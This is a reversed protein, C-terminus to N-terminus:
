EEETDEENSFVVVECNPCTIEIIEDDDLLKTDFSVIEHCSPCEVEVVESDLYDDDLIDEEDVDDYIENELDGLDEDIAEIYEELEEQYENTEEITEAMEEMVDLIAAFLKGEKSNNDIELGEALGKLYAMRENLRSM